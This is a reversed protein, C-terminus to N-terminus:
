IDMPVLEAFHLYSYQNLSGHVSNLAGRCCHLRRRLKNAVSKAVAASVVITALVCRCCCTSLLCLHLHIDTNRSDKLPVKITKQTDKIRTTQYLCQKLGKRMPEGVTTGFFYVTVHGNGVWWLIWICAIYM